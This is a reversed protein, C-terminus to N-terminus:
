DSCLICYEFLIRTSTGTHIAEINQTYMHPTHSKVHSVGGRRDEWGHMMLHSNFHYGLPFHEAPCPHAKM